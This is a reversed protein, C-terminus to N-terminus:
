QQSLWQPLFIRARIRSHFTSINYYYNTNVLNILIMKLADSESQQIQIFCCITVPLAFWNMVTFEFFLSIPVVKRMLFIYPGSFLCQLIYNLWSLINNRMVVIEETSQEM